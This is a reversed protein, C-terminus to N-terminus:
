IKITQNETEYSRIKSVLFGHRATLSMKEYIISEVLYEDSALNFMEENIKMQVRINKLEQKLLTLEKNDEKKKM